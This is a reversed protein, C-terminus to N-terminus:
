HASARLPSFPTHAARLDACTHKLFGHAEEQEDEEEKCWVVGVGLGQAGVVWEGDEGQRYRPPSHNGRAPRTGDM